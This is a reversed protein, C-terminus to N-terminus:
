LQGEQKWKRKQRILFIFSVALAFLGTLTNSIMMTYGVAEAGADTFHTFYYIVPLRFIFIRFFNILLTLRTQGFGLLFSISAYSFSLCICGLLEYRFIMIILAQFEASYGGKAVAFIYSIPYMAAFYTLVGIVGIVLETLMIRSYLAIVRSYKGGGINQSVLSASGDQFGLQLGTLLGSMNNSIGAAGVTTEGYSASMNNVMAKGYSFAAKEIITPVALSIIPLLVEKSFSVSKRSFSFADSSFFLKRIAIIFLVLYSILTSVAILIIGGDLIYVFFATLALKLVIVSINLRLIFKSNGRAREIAIYITNIFNVAVAATVLSFYRAGSEIFVEPTGTLRLFQASFPILLLIPIIVIASFALLTSLDRSLKETNGRGYDRAVIIGGASALGGGIAALMGQIQVMYAVTSVAEPSIHSAMLTDLISFLQSMLQFLALPLCVHFILPLLSGTLSQERFEADRRNLQAMYTLTSVVSQIFVRQKQSKGTIRVSKDYYYLRLKYM